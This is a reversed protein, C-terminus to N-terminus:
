FQLIAESCDNYLRVRPLRRIKNRRDIKFGSAGDASGGVAKNIRGCNHPREAFMTKNPTQRSRDAACPALDIIAAKGYDVPRGLDHNVEDIAAYEGNFQREILITLTLSAGTSSMNM